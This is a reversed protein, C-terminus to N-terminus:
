GSEESGASRNEAADIAAAVLRSVYILLLVCLVLGASGLVTQATSHASVNAAVKTLHSTMYGLYVECFLVPIMAPTAALFVRFPVKSVGMLYSVTVPNIPALRLLFQLRLGERNAAHEIALLKPRTALLREIRPQLLKRALFFNLAATLINGIVVLGTGWALGFLVGGAIGLVSGPVLLSSGVVLMLLFALKGLTGHGAIWNELAVIEDGAHRGFWVIAILIALGLLVKFWPFRTDLPSDQLATM